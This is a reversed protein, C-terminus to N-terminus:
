NGLDRSNEDGRGLGGLVKGRPIKDIFFRTQGSAGENSQNGPSFSESRKVHTRALCKRNKKKAAYINQLRLRSIFFFSLM